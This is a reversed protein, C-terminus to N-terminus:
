CRNEYKWCANNNGNWCRKRWRRCRREHRWSYGSYYGYHGQSLVAAAGLGIALGAIFKGKKGTKHVLQEQTAGVKADQLAPMGASFPGANAPTMAFATLTAATAIATISKYM